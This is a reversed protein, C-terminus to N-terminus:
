AMRRGSGLADPQRLERHGDGYRWLRFPTFLSNTDPHTPHDCSRLDLPRSPLPLPLLRPPPRSHYSNHLSLLHQSCTLNLCPKPTSSPTLLRPLFSLLPRPDSHSHNTHISSHPPLYPRVLNILLGCIGWLGVRVVAGDLTRMRPENKTDDAEMDESDSDRALLVEQAETKPFASVSAAGDKAIKRRCLYGVAWPFIFTSGIEFISGFARAITILKLSFGANLLWTILTGGYSLVSAHLVAVCISPLWVSTSYFYRLGEVHSQVSDRLYHLGTTVTSLSFIRTRPSSPGKLYSREGVSEEDDADVEALTNMASKDKRVRLRANGRWVRLVGWYEAGWSLASTVAVGVVAAKVPAVASVFTSIALPAMLKCLM